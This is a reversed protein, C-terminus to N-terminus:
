RPAPRSTTHGSNKATARPPPTKRASAKSRKRWPMAAAVHLLDFRRRRRKAVICNADSSRVSHLAIDLAKRSDEFLRDFKRNSGSQLSLCVTVQTRGSHRQCPCNALDEVNYRLHLDRLPPAMRLPSAGTLGRQMVSGAGNKRWDKDWLRTVAKPSPPCRSCSRSLRWSRCTPTFAPSHGNSIHCMRAPSHRLGAPTM